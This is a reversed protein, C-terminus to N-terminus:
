SLKAKVIRNVLAGDAQGKVKPMLTKMVKGFDAKGTAGTEQIVSDVLSAVAAEDLQAPLYSEVVKIEGELQAVLDDRGAAKFEALSDKRQKLETALVSKEDDETLDHGLSIQKNLVAAKLMRVVSLTEKDKAKMATKMQAQLENILAM